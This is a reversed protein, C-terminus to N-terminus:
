LQYHYEMNDYYLLINQPKIDRHIILQKHLSQISKIIQQYFYFSEIETLKDSSHSLLYKNLHSGSCYEIIM